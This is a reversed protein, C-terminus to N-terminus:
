AFATAGGPFLLMRKTSVWRPREGSRALNLLGSEGDVMVAEVEDFSAGVLAFRAGGNARARAWIWEAGARTKGFGRGAVIAWVRWPRGEAAAAPEHQGGHAQWWWEEALARRQPATLGLLVRLRREPPQRLLALLAEVAEARSMRRGRARSM